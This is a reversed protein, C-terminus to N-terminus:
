SRRSSLYYAGAGTLSMAGIVQVVVDMPGTHPLETPPTSERETTRPQCEPSGVPVYNGAQSEEVTITEGNNQNCVEVMTSPPALQTKSRITFQRVCNSGDKAGVSTHVTVRVQYTGARQSEFTYRTHKANTTVKRSAVQQNNKTVVFSYAKIVAGNKVSAFATFDFRTRSIKDVSLNTCVASPQPTPQPPKPAPPHASVPNGCPKMVAFMFRGNQDLKVLATQASAMASVSLKSASTGAIPTGGLHRAAMVAGTAVTKGGVTVRGDQYVIGSSFSGSLESKRIGLASFVKGVDGHNYASRVGSASFTGCRVVAYQDCDPSNDVSANATLQVLGVTAFALVSAVFLLLKGRVECV